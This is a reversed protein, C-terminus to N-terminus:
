SHPQTQRFANNEHATQRWAKDQRTEHPWLAQMELYRELITNFRCVESLTTRLAGPASGELAALASVASEAAAASESGHEAAVSALAPQLLSTLM